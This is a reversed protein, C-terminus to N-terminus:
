GQFVTVWLRDPNIRLIKVIFEWAWYIAEEKFYDGVSFNGLMEFFTLHKPTLGVNDIDTTRFCKQCSTLRKSPPEKLGSFFPMVQQVGATTLLVTPDDSPILNSSPIILHNKSKFFELFKNRIDNSRM